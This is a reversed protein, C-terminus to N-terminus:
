RRAPGLVCAAVRQRHWAVGGYGNALVAARKMWIHLDHAWTYGIAGHIQLAARGAANAAESARVKAASVDRAREPVGHAVSWAARYVLPRAFELQLLANSLLHKVAQFSGIPRGFQERSRAHQGAMEIMRDGLGLLQASVAFAGRDVAAAVARASEAAGALATSDRPAWEVSFCHRGADLWPHAVLRVDGPLVAHVAGADDQLLLLDATDADVVHPGFARLGVAVRAGGGAIDAIWRDQVSAPALEGLLPGAIVATDVLPDPLAFRGAEELLLAADVESLGLGGWREPILLGLAGMEALRRWRQAPRAAGDFEARVAAASCERELLTRVSDRVSRQQEEFLFRM